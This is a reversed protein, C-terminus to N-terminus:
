HKVIRHLDAASAFIAREFAVGCESGAVWRVKARHFVGLPGVPQLRPNFLVTDGRCPMPTDDDEIELRAGLVSLDLIMVERASTDTQLKGRHCASEPTLHVRPAARRDGCQRCVWACEGAPGNDVFEHWTLGDCQSCTTYQVLPM